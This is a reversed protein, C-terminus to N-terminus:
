DGGGSGGDGGGDAGSGGLGLGGAVGTSIARRFKDAPSRLIAERVIAGGILSVGTMVFIFGWPLWDFDSKPDGFIFLVLGAPTILVGATGIVWTSPLIKM